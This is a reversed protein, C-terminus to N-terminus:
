GARRAPPAEAPPGVSVGQRVVTGRPGAAAAQFLGGRLPECAPIFDETVLTLNPNYFPDGQELCARWKQQFLQIERRERAVKSLTNNRGRTKSEHHYLNAYPTWIIRYGRSRVKLCLDMDNFAVVFREDFGGVEEFVSKRLMLCAATVASLNQTVVLRQGYGASEGSWHVHAHGAVGGVGIIAGGHQITGDPYLLKAGVAGVEARLAHELMRGLWDPDRAEVDNNLLLLVEGAVQGAAWNNIAAFNFPGDWTLVRTRPRATLRAYYAFTAPKRSNNEVIVIEYNAYDVGALSALCRDLLAINDKNPIIVSVVPRRACPYRVEYIGAELGDEVEGALGCRRLHQGLAKKAVMSVGAADAAPAARPSRRHYLVRPVHVITDARESVRLILEYDEAGDFGTRFGGVQELLPRRFVVLRGLYNHSRLTDPSWGPKFLPATRAGTDGALTDEDSYILDADPYRAVAGALEFLAVPSLLDEAEALAVYAGTALALAANGTAAGGDGAQFQVKIRRDAGHYAELIARIVPQSNGADAICLEWDAYTQRRVSELMAVLAGPDPDRTVVAISITPGGAAAAQRQAELEAATPENLAMWRLYRPPLYADEAAPPNFSPAGAPLGEEEPRRRVAVRTLGLRRRVRQVGVKLYHSRLSGRPAVVARCGALVRNFLRNQLATHRALLTRAGAITEEQLAQAREANARLAALLVELVIEQKVM